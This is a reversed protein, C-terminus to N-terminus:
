TFNKIRQGRGFGISGPQSFRVARTSVQGIQHSETRSRGEHDVLPLRVGEAAQADHGRKQDNGASGEAQGSEIDLRALDALLEEDAQGNGGRGAGQGRKDEEGGVNRLVHGHPQGANRQGQSEENGDQHDAVHTVCGEFISFHEARM